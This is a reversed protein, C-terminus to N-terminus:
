RTIDHLLIAAAQAVNLSQVAGSGVIRVRRRCAALVPASIGTEENGLIVATPRDRPLTTLAPADLELSAAVVRYHPALAEIVAPLNRTRYLDLQELGGESTRYAAESPMAQAPVEHLILARAGFFGASRAIAGLNHPNGIGDLLLIVDRDTRPQIAPPTQSPNFIAPIRARAIAALGGHHLTGAARALEDPPMMRYPRRTAALLACWAGVQGRQAETYFLRQVDDPRRAFLATVAALGCIAHPKM